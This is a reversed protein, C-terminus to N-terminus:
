TSSKTVSRRTSTTTTSHRNSRHNPNLRVELIIREVIFRLL